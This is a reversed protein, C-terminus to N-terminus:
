PLTAFRECQKGEMHAQCVCAGATCAGSLSCDLDTTCAAATGAAALLLSLAPAMSHPLALAMTSKNFWSRNYAQVVVPLDSVLQPCTFMDKAMPARPASSLQWRAAASVLLTEFCGGVM